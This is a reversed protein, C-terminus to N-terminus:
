LWVVLWGLLRTVVLILALIFAFLLWWCGVVEFYCYLVFCGAM